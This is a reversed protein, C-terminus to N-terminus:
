INEHVPSSNPSQHNLPRRCRDSALRHALLWFKPAPLSSRFIPYPREVSVCYSLHVRIPYTGLSNWTIQPIQHCYQDPTQTKRQLIIGANSTGLPFPCSPADHLPVSRLELQFHTHKGQNIFEVIKFKTAHHKWNFSNLKTQLRSPSQEKWISAPQYQGHAYGTALAENFIASSLPGRIFDM